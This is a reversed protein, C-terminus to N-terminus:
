ETNNGMLIRLLRERYIEFTFNQSLRRYGNAGLTTSLIPDEFLLNIKTALCESDDYECLFGTEGDIIVDTPGGYNVAIVPKKYQMAELYVIGFGEKKSPLSFVDCHQYYANIDDVFGLFDVYKELALDKAIQKLRITDDGKGIVTYKMHPIEEILFPLTKIMTDIGKLQESKELRTVSLINFEDKYYPNALAENTDKIKICNPFIRIDQLNPNHKLLENKSFNSVTLITSKNMIWETTKSLKKWIEIGHTCFLITAKPNLLKIFIALPALNVHAFIFTDFYKANMMVYNFAALKNGELIKIPLSTKVDKEEDYISVLEVSINENELSIEELASMFYKNFTQIGGTQSFANQYIFAIRNNDM